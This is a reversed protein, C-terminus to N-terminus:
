VELFGMIKVVSIRSSWQNTRAVADIGAADAIEQRTVNGSNSSDVPLHKPGDVETEVFELHNASQMGAGMRGDVVIGLLVQPTAVHRILM